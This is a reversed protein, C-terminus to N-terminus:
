AKIRKLYVPMERNSQGGVGAVEWGEAGLLNLYEHISPGDKWGALEEGNVYRPRFGGYERFVVERYEWVQRKPKAPGSSRKAPTRRKPLPEPKVTPPAAPAPPPATPEGGLIESLVDPTEKRNAM